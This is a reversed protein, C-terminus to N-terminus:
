THVRADMRWTELCQRQALFSVDQYRTMTRQTLLNKDGDEKIIITDSKM